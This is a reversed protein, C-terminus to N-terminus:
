AEGVVCAGFVLEERADFLQDFLEGSWRKTFSTKVHQYLVLAPTPPIGDGKM